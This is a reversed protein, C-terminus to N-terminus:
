ARLYPTSTEGAAVFGTPGLFGLAAKPAGTTKSFATTGLCINFVCITFCGGVLLPRRGIHECAILSSSISSILLVFTITVLFPDALGAVKFFYSSYSFIIPAGASSQSCIGLCEGLTRRWNRKDFIGIFSSSHSASALEQEADTGHQVVRYEREVDYRAIKGYLKLMSRKAQAHQGKRSHYIHSEPVIWIFIILVNSAMTYQLTISAATVAFETAILPKWKNPQRTDVVQTAVAAMLQGFGLRLQYAGIM